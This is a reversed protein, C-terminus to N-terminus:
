KQSIKVKTLRNPKTPLLRDDTQYFTYNPFKTASDIEDESLEIILEPHAKQIDSIFFGITGFRNKHHYILFIDAPLYLVGIIASFLEISKERTHFGYKYPNCLIVASFENQFVENVKYADCFVDIYHIKCENKINELDTLLCEPYFIKGFNGCGAGLELKKTTNM